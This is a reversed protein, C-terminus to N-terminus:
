ETERLRMAEIRNGIDVEQQGVKEERADLECAEVRLQDVLKEKSGVEREREGLEKGRADLTRGEAKLQTAIETTAAQTNAVTSTSPPIIPEVIASGISSSAPPIPSKLIPTVTARIPAVPVSRHSNAFHLKKLEAANKYTTGRWHTYITNAVGPWILMRSDPYRVRLPDVM